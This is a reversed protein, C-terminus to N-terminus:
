YGLHKLNREVTKRGRWAFARRLFAAKDLGALIDSRLCEIRERRFFEVPTLRPSKNYPCSSQCEDCGWVTNVKRMLSVEGETLEGKRQTIASLCDNGEGSLIGTPCARRCAGCHLCGRPERPALAGLLEPDLDTVIDGVFVYSGYRENIILGNDGRVGLGAILAAHCEDIPSHDGYSKFSAEPYESRLVDILGGSIEGIAIHYDLSAAYRSMNVCEGFYYPLIYILVSKPTFGARKRIDPSIERCDAYSLAGFFEINESAFYEEIRKAVSM